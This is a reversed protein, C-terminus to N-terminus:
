FGCGCTGEENCGSYYGEEPEDLGPETQPDGYNDPVTFVDVDPNTTDADVIQVEPTDGELFYEYIDVGHNGNETFREVLKPVFVRGDSLFVKLGELEGYMCNEDLVISETKIITLGQKELEITLLETPNKKTLQILLDSLNPINYDQSWSM